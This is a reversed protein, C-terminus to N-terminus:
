AGDWRARAAKKAIASRDEASLAKARGQGGKSARREKPTPEPEQDTAEGTTLDVIRKALQNLDRPRQPKKAM